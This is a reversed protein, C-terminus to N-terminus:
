VERGIVKKEVDIIHAMEESQSLSVNVTEQLENMEILVERMNNYDLGDRPTVEMIAKIYNM